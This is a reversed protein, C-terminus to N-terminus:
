KRAATMNKKVETWSLTKLKGSKYLQSRRELEAKQEKSLSRASTNKTLETHLLEKDM